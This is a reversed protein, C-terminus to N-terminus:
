FCTGRLYHLICVIVAWHITTPAFGFQSVIHVDYAIDLRTITLYVLCRVITRYLTPNTLFVGDSPSYQANAELSTDVTKTNIFRAREIIDIAYM